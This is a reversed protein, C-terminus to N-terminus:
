LAVPNSTLLAIFHAIATSNIYDQSKQERIPLYGSM